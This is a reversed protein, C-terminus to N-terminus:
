FLSVRRDRILPVPKSADLLETRQFKFMAYGLTGLETAFLPTQSTWTVNDPTVVTFSLCLLAVSGKIPNFPANELPIIGADDQDVKVRGSIGTKQIKSLSTNVIEGAKIALSDFEYYIALKLFENCGAARSPGITLAIRIVAVPRNGANIFTLHQRPPSITVEGTREQLYVFPRYDV